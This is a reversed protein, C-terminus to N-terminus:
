SYAAVSAAAIPSAATNGFGVSIHPPLGLMVDMEVNKFSAAGLQEKVHFAAELAKLLAVLLKKDQHGAILENIRGINVTDMSAILKASLEPVLGMSMRFNEITFGLARMTPLAENFDDLFRGATDAAASTLEQAKGMLDKLGM